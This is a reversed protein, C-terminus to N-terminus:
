FWDGGGTGPGMRYSQQGAPAAGIGGGSVGGIGAGTNGVLGQGGGGGGMFEWSSSEVGEGSDVDMGFQRVLQDWNEWDLDGSTDMAPDFGNSDISPIRTQHSLADQQAAGATGPFPLGNAPNASFIVANPAPTNNPQLDM